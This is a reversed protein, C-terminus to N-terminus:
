PTSRSHAKEITQCLPLCVGTLGNSLRIPIVIRLQCPPSSIQSSWMIWSSPWASRLPFCLCELQVRSRLKYVQIADFYPLTSIAFEQPIGSAVLHDIGIENSQLTNVNYLGKDASEVNSDKLSTKPKSPTTDTHAPFEDFCEPTPEM